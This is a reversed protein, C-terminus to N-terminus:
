KVTVEWDIGYKSADQGLNDAIKKAVIDKLMKIQDDVPVDSTSNPYLAAQFRESPPDFYVFYGTGRIPLKLYWPYNTLVADQMKQYYEDARSQLEIIQQETPQDYTTTPPPTPLPVKRIPQPAPTVTFIEIIPPVKGDKQSSSQIRLFILAAIILLSLIIIIIFQPRLLNM